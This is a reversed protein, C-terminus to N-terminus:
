PNVIVKITTSYAPKLGYIDVATLTVTFTGERRFRRKVVPGEADVSIGDSSDFDWLFRVPTAGASGAASFTFEEGFGLNLERINPEAYAPTGDKLIKASGLYMTAVSDLSISMSALQKNTKDFGNIAQLPIGVAFWGREDKLSTSIDLYTEGHKGDTTTFVVRIKSAPKAQNTSTAGGQEGGGLGPAGAGGGFGGPAGGTPGGGVRGGGTRGGVGPASTAGGSNPINVMFKLLNEKVGFDSSLDIPKSFVIRGGQFFNRSSIRIAHGGDYVIDDEQGITGSGWGSLKLGQDETSQTPEYVAQAHAVVSMLM